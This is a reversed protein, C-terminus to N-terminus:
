LLTVLPLVMKCVDLWTFAKHFSQSRAPKSVYPLPWLWNLYAVIIVLVLFLPGVRRNLTRLRQTKELKYSDKDVALSNM